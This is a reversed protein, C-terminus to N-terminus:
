YYRPESVSRRSRWSVVVFLAASVYLLEDRLSQSHDIINKHLAVVSALAVTKEIFPRHATTTGHCGEDRANDDNKKIRM